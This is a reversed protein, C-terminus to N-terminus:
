DEAPGEAAALAGPVLAAMRRESMAGLRVAEFLAKAFMASTSQRGVEARDEEFPVQQSAEVAAEFPKVERLYRSLDTEGIVSKVRWGLTKCSVGFRYAVRVAEASDAHALGEVVRNPVLLAAAFANARREVADDTQAFVDRDARAGASVDGLVWHGVEHALTFRQRSGWHTSNIVVAGRDGDAACVGDVGQGLPAWAVALGVQEAVEVPNVPENGAHFQDRVLSSATEGAAVTHGRRELHPRVGLRPELGDASLQRLTRLVLTAQRVAAEIAEANSGSDTRAAVAMGVSLPVEEVLDLPDARLAAALDVLEGASLGREGVEVKSLKPQDLGVLRALEAQTLGLRLRRQKIREGVATDTIGVSILIDCIQGGTSATPRVPQVEQVM